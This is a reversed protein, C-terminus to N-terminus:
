SERLGEGAASVLGEEAWGLRKLLASEADAMEARQVEGLAHDYGLLHLLGHALLIRLEDRVAHGREVAQRQATERSIVVDGLLREDELPFSLVDTPRDVGRWRQNLDCIFEDDCLTLSLQEEGAVLGAASMLDRADAVLWASLEADLQEPRSSRCCLLVDDLEEALADDLNLGEASLLARSIRASRVTRLGLLGGEEEGRAFRSIPAPHRAVLPPRPSPGLLLLYPLLGPTILM